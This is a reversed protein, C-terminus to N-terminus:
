ESRAARGFDRRCQFLHIRRVKRLLAETIRHKKVLQMRQEKLDDGLRAIFLQHDSVDRLSLEGRGMRALMERRRAMLQTVLSGGDAGESKAGEGKAGEGKAAEGKASKSRPSTSPKAAPSAAVPPPVSLLPQPPQTPASPAASDVCAPQALPGSSGDSKAGDSSAATSETLIEVQAAAKQRALEQNRKLAADIKAM